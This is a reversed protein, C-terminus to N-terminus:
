KLGIEYEELCIEGCPNSSSVDAVEGIHANDSHFIGPEGNTLMGTTIAEFVSM